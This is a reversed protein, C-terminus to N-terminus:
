DSFTLNIRDLALQLKEKEADPSYFERLKKIGPELDEYSFSHNDFRQVAQLTENVFNRIDGQRVEIFNPATWYEKAGQGTYGIVLNGALAAEMPPLPLGELEHFSLFIDSEALMAAVTAESVNEIPTITWSDPLHQLLAHVVRLSHDKMKRPMYAIRGSPNAGTPRTKGMFRDHISWQVRVIRDPKIQPYNLRVIETTDESITLVLKAASYVASYLDRYELLHPHTLYGGQVFIGFRPAAANLFMEGLTVAWIEPIIIFDHLPDLDCNRLMQTNHMFWDWTFEPKDPHLVFANAGLSTLLEAHQYIVKVGGTPHENAPCFFIIRKM